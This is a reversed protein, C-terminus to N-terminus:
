EAALGRKEGALIMLREYRYYRPEVAGRLVTIEDNVGGAAVECLTLVIKSSQLAEQRTRGPEVRSQSFGELLPKV